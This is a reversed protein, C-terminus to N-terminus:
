ERSYAAEMKLETNNFSMCDPYEGRIESILLTGLAFNNGGVSPLVQFYQLCEFNEAEKKVVEVSVTSFVYADSHLALFSAYDSIVWSGPDPVESYYAYKDVYDLLLNM